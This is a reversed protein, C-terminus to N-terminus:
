QVSVQFFAGAGEVPASIVTIRKETASFYISFLQNRNENVAIEVPTFQALDTSVLLQYKRGIQVDFSVSIWDDGPLENTQFNARGSFVTALTGAIFEGGDTLGESDFDGEGTILLLDDPPGIQLNGGGSRAEHGFGVWSSRTPRGGVGGEPFGGGVADGEHDVGGFAGEGLFGFARRHLDPEGLKKFGNPFWERAVEIVGFGDV